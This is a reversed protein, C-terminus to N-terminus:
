YKINRSIIPSKCCSRAPMEPCYVIVFQGKTETPVKCQNSDKTHCFMIGRYLSQPIYEQWNLSEWTTSGSYIKLNGATANLKINEFKAFAVNYQM